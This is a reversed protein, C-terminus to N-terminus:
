SGLLFNVCLRAATKTDLSLSDRFGEPILVNIQRPARPVEQGRDNSTIINYNDVTAFKQTQTKRAEEYLLRVAKTKGRDDAVENPLYYTKTDV